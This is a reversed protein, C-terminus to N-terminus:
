KGILYSTWDISHKELLKKFLDFMGKGTANECTDLALLREVVEPEGTSSNSRCYRVVITFQDKKSIDTTTDIIIAFFKAARIEDIINRRIDEALINLMQNQTKNSLFTITRRENKLHENLFNSLAPHQKCMLFVLDLFNGLNKENVQSLKEQKGRLASNRKALHNLITFLVKVAERNQSVLFNHSKAVQADIRENSSLFVSRSIESEIHEKHSEHNKLTQAVNRWNKCGNTVFPLHKSSPKGFLICSM